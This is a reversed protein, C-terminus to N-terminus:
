IAFYQFDILSDSDSVMTEENEESTKTLQEKRILSKYSKDLGASKLLFTRALPEGSYSFRGQLALITEAAAIQAAPFDSNRLCSILTDIAEERYISPKRPEM